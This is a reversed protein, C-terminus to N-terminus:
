ADISGEMIKDLSDRIDEKANKGWDDIVEITESVGKEVDNAAEEVLKWADETGDVIKELGVKIDERSEEGRTKLNGM